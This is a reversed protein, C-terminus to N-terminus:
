FRELRSAFVCEARPHFGDCDNSGVDGLHFNDCCDPQHVLLFQQFRIAGALIGIPTLMALVALDTLVAPSSQCREGTDGATTTTKAYLVLGIVNIFICFLIFLEFQISTCLKYCLMRFGSEADFINLSKGELVVHDERHLLGGLSAVHLREIMHDFHHHDANKAIKDLAREVSVRMQESRLIATSSNWIGFVTGGQACMLLGCLRLMSHILTSVHEAGNEQGMGAGGLWWEEFPHFGVYTNAAKTPDMENIAQSLQDDDVDIGLDDALVRLNAKTIRDRGERKSDCVVNIRQFLRRAALHSETPDALVLLSAKASAFIGRLRIARRFDCEDNDNGFDKVWWKSVSDMSISTSGGAALMNDYIARLEEESM